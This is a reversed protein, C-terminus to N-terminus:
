ATLALHDLRRWGKEPFPQRRRPRNGLLALTLQLHADDNQKRQSGALTRPKKKQRSTTATLTPFHYMELDNTVVQCHSCVPFATDQHNLRTKSTHFSIGESLCVIVRDREGMFFAFICRLEGYSSSSTKRELNVTTYTNRFISKHKFLISRYLNM